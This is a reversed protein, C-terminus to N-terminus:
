PFVDEPAEPEPHTRPGPLDEGRKAKACEECFPAGQEAAAQLTQAQSDQDVPEPPLAPEPAAPEPAPRARPPPPPPLEPPPEEHATPPPPRPPEQAIVEGRRLARELEDRLRESLMGQSRGSPAIASEESASSGLLDILGAGDRADFWDWSGGLEFAVQRNAREQESSLPRGLGHRVLKLQRLGLRISVSDRLVV